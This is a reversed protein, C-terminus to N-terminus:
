SKLLVNQLNQPDICIYGEALRKAEAIFGTPTFIEHSRNTYVKLIETAPVGAAVAASILAGTSAGACYDVHDRTLGGLQSELEV